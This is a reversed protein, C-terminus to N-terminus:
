PRGYEQCISGTAPPNTSNLATLGFRSQSEAKQSAPGANSELAVILKQHQATVTTTDLPGETATTPPTSRPLIALAFPRIRDSAAAAANTLDSAIPVWSSAASLPTVTWTRRQLQKSAIDVRLQTCVESGSTTDRLEVYWDGTAGAGTSKGPTSIAAAPRVIRELTQYAQNNQTASNTVAQAQNTTKHLSIVAGTFISGAVVMITMGVILEMLTAGREETTTVRAHARRLARLLERPLSRMLEGEV